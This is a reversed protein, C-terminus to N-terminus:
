IAFISYLRKAGTFGYKHHLKEHLDFELHNNCMDVFEISCGKLSSAVRVIDEAIAEPLPINEKEYKPEYKKSKGDGEGLVYSDEVVRYWECLPHNALSPILDMLFEDKKGKDTLVIKKVIPDQDQYKIILKSM